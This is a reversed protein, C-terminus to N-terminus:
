NLIEQRAQRKAQETKKNIARSGQVVSVAILGLFILLALGNFLGGWMRVVPKAALDGAVRLILSAHLVALPFYLTPTFRIPRGLVAPFIIPAHGFIMSMVFGVFVTHLLADYYLGAVLLGYWLGLIGAAALWVYGSLLCIAAYRPLGPRRLTYRAIDYRLLWLALALMGAAVLRAGPAPDILGLLLGGIFLGTSALFLGEAYRSLRVLRGLELREGAITLILFGAWWFVVQYIPQGSLWLLNGTLWLGAGLAMTLTYLATQRRVIEIFVAVLGLSGLSILLAGAAPPLGAILAVGGLACLAPPLYTWTQRLAVAREVAILTGLFGSVMLPGHASILSPQLAPWAWGLRVWGGWVAGLLILVSAAMLPYRGWSPNKVPKEPKRM